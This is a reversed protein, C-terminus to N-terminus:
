DNSPGIKKAEQWLSEIQEPSMAKLDLGREMAIREVKSFRAIFKDCARRLVEEPNAGIFRPVNATALMLDGLEESLMALDGRELAHEAEELEERVKALVERADAWDMGLRRAKEGLKEARMLAPLARGTDALSSTSARHKGAKEQAKIKDWELLVQASTEAKVEGYVHPHRRVLKDAARTLVSALGPAGTEAAITCSFIVQVLLDGLEETIEASDGSAIADASEYAEEILHRSSAALTQERDWACKERLERVVAALRAFEQGESM